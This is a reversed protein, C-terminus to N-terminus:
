DIVPRIPTATDRHTDIIVINESTTSFLFSYHNGYSSTWYRACTGEGYQFYFVGYGAAPFFISKDEFGEKTSTFIQGAVGTGEYDDTWNSTTNELMERFEEYSPMRWNGGINVHAADYEPKLNYNEDLAYAPFTEFGGESWEKGNWIQGSVDGWAFYRGYEEPKSAGINYTGWKVSLGLDVFDPLVPNNIDETEPMNAIGQASCLVPFLSLSLFLIKKMKKM